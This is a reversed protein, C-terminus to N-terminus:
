SAIKAAKSDLLGQRLSNVHDKMMDVTIRAYGSVPVEHGSSNIGTGPLDAIIAALYRVHCEM